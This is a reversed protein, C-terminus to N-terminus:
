EAFRQASESHEFRPVSDPATTSTYVYPVISFSM